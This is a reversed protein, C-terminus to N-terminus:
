GNHTGKSAKCFLIHHKDPIKPLSCIFGPDKSVWMAEVLGTYVPSDQLVLIFHGVFQENEIEPCFAIQILDGAELM